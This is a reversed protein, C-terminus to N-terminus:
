NSLWWNFRSNQAVPSDLQIYFGEFSIKNAVWYKSAPSYNDEFTIYIKSQPNVETAKVFVTTDGQPIIGSGSALIQNTSTSITIPASILDNKATQGLNLIGTEVLLITLLLLLSAYIATRLRREPTSLFRFVNSLNKRAHQAEVKMQIGSNSLGEKKSNEILILTELAWLPYHGTVKGKSTQIREMHPLWGIKTYYRLRNYPDSKGFNVGRKRAESILKDASIHSDM